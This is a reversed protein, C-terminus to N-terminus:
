NLWWGALGLYGLWFSGLMAFFSIYGWPQAHTDAVYTSYKWAAIAAAPVIFVLALAAAWGLPGCIARTGFGLAPPVLLLALAIWHVGNGTRPPQFTDLPM